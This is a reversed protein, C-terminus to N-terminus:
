RGTGSDLRESDHLAQVVMLASARALAVDRCSAALDVEFRPVIARYAGFAASALPTEALQLRAEMRAVTAEIDELTPSPPTSL